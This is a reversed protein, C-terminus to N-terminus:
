GFLMRIDDASLASGFVEGDDMVSAFLAAKKEKLAMVKEEITDKAILRYVMVNRSQGIRHTRDVAQAETAPNWWPDLLFCYDAETLNLGFGGAKLSILFVPAAGEKFGAIVKGRNRTSGDLYSYPIGAADLQTRVIDLFSTFQSFVLARHGGDVVDRLQELLAEVKASPLDGYQEDVLAPHLSLQRLMTLSRFITFRNKNMDDVMGLVRQRERQLHTQYVKRHRPHLEVELIQEQKAPLDSAVQEKTRRKVLPRVRRRLQGLLGPDGVREIRRAYYQQFRVPDPFLGPATISLLSWLEMLNNEMPTGTIALKFAAPLRRACQYVKSQHNKVVQAEDLVLGAWPLKAYAEFDLRLLTYSTVVVDAGAATEGIDQRRRRMTDSISAVKLGPTFRAAEAEWNSVVSTPAVVLFPLDTTERAHCVLALTQLTKGLGMDDALVGGLKNEWLFTLWQFGTVQYPRLQADVMEPVDVSSTQELTLLGHVQRRWERAQHEVVGINVLEDWLGAQFRSIKLSDTPQDLLARAEIILKHLARLEPKQLSFYAGDPLLLYPKDKSLALFVDMFPITRGEVTIHVGLDFWDTQGPIDNASIGIQVSDGAERYEAPEGAIEIQVQDELLPLVETTFQMTEVGHLNTNVPDVTLDALIASEKALDRYADPEADLSARVQKPGIEYAWEWVLELEHEDLYSANLVLRPESIAPPTFSGDSSVIEALHRLKPYYRDVFRPRERAPIVLQRDMLIMDRLPEPAQQALKALGIRCDEHDGAADREARSVYVIGHGDGLFRLPVADTVGEVQVCPTVVLDDTSRADLCIRAERYPDVDGLFKRAHVLRVGAGRAEDLFTWLHRSDFRSLDIMRDDRFYVPEQSRYLAYMQQLLRVHSSDYGYPDLKGWSLGGGVWGNRGQRVVKAFITPGPAPGRVRSLLPETALTLEIGLPAGSLDPDPSLLSGLSQEWESTV